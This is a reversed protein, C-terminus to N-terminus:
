PTPGVLEHMVVGPSGPLEIGALWAVTAALDVQSRVQDRVQGAAIDPGLALLSIHRCGECDDGHSIYGDGHGDLHRGHDNTIFLDTRDHLEADAQIVSWIRAVAADNAAIGRLYGDWDKAHGSSDPERLNVLMLEPHDSALVREVVAVTAGDTRYGGGLNGCDFRPVLHGKWAKDKTDALIKLKDKSAVVWTSGAPHDTAARFLQFMSPHNPLENGQNEIQEYFGTTLATHGCNTYTWGTNRFATYRTGQAALEGWQHPINKAAVAPDAWTESWRPGDIVVIFLHRAKGRWGAWASPAAPDAAVDAASLGPGALLVISWALLLIPFRMTM